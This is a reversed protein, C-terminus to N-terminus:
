IVQPSYLELSSFGHKRISRAFRASHHSYIYIYSVWVTYKLNNVENRVEHNTRMMDFIDAPTLPKNPLANNVVAVATSTDETRWRRVCYVKKADSYYLCLITRLYELTLGM